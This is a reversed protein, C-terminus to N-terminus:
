KNDQKTQTLTPGIIPNTLIKNLMKVHESYIFINVSHM